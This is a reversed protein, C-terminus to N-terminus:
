VIEQMKGSFDTCKVTIANADQVGARWLGAVMPVASLFSLSSQKWIITITKSLM